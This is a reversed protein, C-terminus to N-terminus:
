QYIGQEKCVNASDRIISDVEKPVDVMWEDFIKQLQVEAGIMIGQKQACCALACSAIQLSEKNTIESEDMDMSNELYALNEIKVGSKNICELGEEVSIKFIRHFSKAIYMTESEGGPFERDAFAVAVFALVLLFKM